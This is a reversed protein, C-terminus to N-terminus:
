NELTFIKAMDVNIKEILRVQTPAYRTGTSIENRRVIIEIVGPKEAGVYIAWIHAIDSVTIPVNTAINNKLGIFRSDNKVGIIFAPKTFTPNLGYPAFGAAYISAVSIDKTFLTYGSEFQFNYLGMSKVYGTSLTAKMEAFSMGRFVMTDDNFKFDNSDVYVNSMPKLDKDVLFPNYYMRGHYEVETEKIYEPRPSEISFTNIEEGLCYSTKQLIFNFNGFNLNFLTLEDLKHYNRVVKAQNIGQIPIM